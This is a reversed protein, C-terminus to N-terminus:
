FDMFGKDHGLVWYVTFGKFFPFFFFSHGKFFQLSTTTLFRRNLLEYPKPRASNKQSVELVWWGLALSGWIELATHCHGPSVILSVLGISSLNLFFFFPYRTLSLLFLLFFYFFFFFFFFMDM